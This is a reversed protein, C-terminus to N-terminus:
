QVVAAYETSFARRMLTTYQSRSLETSEGVKRFGLMEVTTTGVGSGFQCAGTFMERCAQKRGAYKATIAYCASDDMSLTAGLMFIDGNTPAGPGRPGMVHGLRPVDYGRYCSVVLVKDPHRSKGPWERYAALVSQRNSATAGPVVVPCGICDSNISVPPLPTATPTPEPTPTPAPTPTPEPTPTPTPAPTPELAATLQPTATATPPVSPPIETPLADAGVGCALTGLLIAVTSIRILVNM